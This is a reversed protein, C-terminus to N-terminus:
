CFLSQNYVSLRLYFYVRCGPCLTWFVEHSFPIRARIGEHFCELCKLTVKEGWRWVDRWAGLGVNVM